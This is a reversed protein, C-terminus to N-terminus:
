YTAKLTTEGRIDGKEVRVRITHETGTKKGRYKLTYSSSLVNSIPLKTLDLAQTSIRGAYNGRVGASSLSAELDMFMGGTALNGTFAKMDVYPAAVESGLDPGIVHVVAKGRLKELAANLTSPTWRTGTPVTGSGAQHQVEDTIMILVKAAGSRWNMKDYAFETAGMGNEPNDNGGRATNQGIFDRFATFDSSLAFSPRENYDFSPPASPTALAVGGKIGTPSTVTDFADGFTVAGVRVDLGSSQLANSFSIISDKVGNIAGSMSATTDFVFVIDTPISTDKTATTATLGKITSDEVITFNANTLDKVPNGKSDVFGPISLMFLGNADATTNLGASLSVTKEAATMPAPPTGAKDAYPDTSDSGGGGCASLTLTLTLPVLWLTKKM